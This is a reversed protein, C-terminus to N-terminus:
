GSTAAALALSGAEKSKTCMWKGAKGGTADTKFAMNGECSAHDAMLWAVKGRCNIDEALALQSCCILSLGLVVKKM